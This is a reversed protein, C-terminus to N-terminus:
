VLVGNVRRIETVPEILLVQPLDSVPTEIGVVAIALGPPTPVLPSLAGKFKGHLHLLILGEWPLVARVDDERQHSDCRQLEM